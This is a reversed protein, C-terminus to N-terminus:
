QHGPTMRRPAKEGALGSFDSNSRRVAGPSRHKRQSIAKGPHSHHNRQGFFICSFWDFNLHGEFHNAKRQRYSPHRRMAHDHSDPLCKTRGSGWGVPLTGTGHRSGCLVSRTKHEVPRISPTYLTGRTGFVAGEPVERGKKPALPCERRRSRCSSLPCPVLSNCPRHSLERMHLDKSPKAAM